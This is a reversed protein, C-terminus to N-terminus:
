IIVSLNFKSIVLIRVYNIYECKILVKILGMFEKNKEKKLSRFFQREIM